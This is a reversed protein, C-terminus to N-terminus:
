LKSKLPGARIETETRPAGWDMQALVKNILRSILQFSWTNSSLSACVNQKEPTLFGPNGFELEFSVNFVWIKQRVPAIYLPKFLM